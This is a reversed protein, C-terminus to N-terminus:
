ADSIAVSEERSKDHRQLLAWLDFSVGQTHGHEEELKSEILNQLITDWSRADEITCDFGDPHEGSRIYEDHEAFKTGEDIPDRKSTNVTIMLNHLAEGTPISEFPIHATKRRKLTHSQPTNDKQEDRDEVQLDRALYGRPDGKAFPSKHHEFPDETSNLAAIAKKYRNEHPSNSSTSPGSQPETSRHLLQDLKQQQLQTRRKQMAAEKRSEFNMTVALDPHMSGSSQTSSRGGVQGLAEREQRLIPRNDLDGTTRHPQQDHAQPTQQTLPTESSARQSRQIPAVFPKQPGAGHKQQWGQKRQQQKRPRQSVDPINALPTGMPLSRASVFGSASTNAVTRLHGGVGGIGDGEEQLDAPSSAGTINQNRAWPNTSFPLRTPSSFEHASHLTSAPSPLHIPSSSGRLISPSASYTKDEPNGRMNRETGSRAPTLPQGYKEVAGSKQLKPVPVRPKISANMKAITWPNNLTVDKAALEDDEEPMAYYLEGVDEPVIDDDEDADYMTSKWARRRTRQEELSRTASELRDASDALSATTGSEAQREQTPSHLSGELFLDDGPATTSSQRFSPTKSRGRPISPAVDHESVRSKRNLLLEFGEEQDEVHRSMTGKAAVAEKKGYMHTFFREVTQLVGEVDTFLVNDKAPELNPDYSGPPCCLNLCLFPNILKEHSAISSSSKLYSKYMSVIEKLTGRNCSVPRSDISLYQGVNSIAATDLFGDARRTYSNKYLLRVM